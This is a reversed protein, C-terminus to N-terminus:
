KGVNVNAKPKSKYQNPKHCWLELLFARVKDRDNSRMQCFQSKWHDTSGCWFCGSYGVPYKSVHGTPIHKPYLQDGKKVFEIDEHNSKKPTYKQLTEEALSQGFHVPVTAKSKGPNMSNYLELFEENRRTMDDFIEVAQNKVTRMGKIQDMKRLLKSIKPMKFKKDKIIKSRIKESLASLYTSPLSIPWEKADDPLNAVLQMFKQYLDDPSDIIIKGDKTYEQRLKGIVDCVERVYSEPRADEDGVYDVKCVALFIDLKCRDIFDQLETQENWLEGEETAHFLRPKPGFTIHFAEQTNLFDMKGYYGVRIVGLSSRPNTFALMKPSIGAPITPTVQGSPPGSDAGDAEDEEKDEIDEENDSDTKKEEESKRLPTAFLKRNTKNPSGLPLTTDDIVDYKTQPLKLSFELHLYRDKHIRKDISPGHIESAFRAYFLGEKRQNLDESIETELRNMSSDFFGLGHLNDISLISDRIVQGVAEAETLALSTEIPLKTGVFMMLEMVPQTESLNMITTELSQFAAAKAYPPSNVDVIPLMSVPISNTGVKVFDFGGTTGLAPAGVASASTPILSTTQNSKAKSAKLASVINHASSM